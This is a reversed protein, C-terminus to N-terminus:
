CGDLSCATPPFKPQFTRVLKLSLSAATAPYAVFYLSIWIHVFLKEDKTEIKM